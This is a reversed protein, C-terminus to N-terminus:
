AISSLEKTHCKTTASKVDSPEVFSNSSRIYSCVYEGSYSLKFNTCPINLSLKHSGTAGIDVVGSKIISNNYIIDITGKTAIPPSLQYATIMCAVNFSDGATYENMLSMNIVDRSNNIKMIVQINNSAIKRVSQEGIWAVCTYNSLTSVPTSSTIPSFRLTSIFSTNTVSVIPLISVGESDSVLRNENGNDRYWSVNVISNIDTNTANIDTNTAIHCELQQSTNSLMLSVTNTALTKVFTDKVTVSVNGQQFPCNIPNEIILLSCIYVTNNISQDVTLILPNTFAKGSTHEQWSVIVESQRYNHGLTCDYERVDGLRLNTDFLSNMVPVQICLNEASSIVTDIGDISARCQYVGADSLQVSTINLTTVLSKSDGNIM